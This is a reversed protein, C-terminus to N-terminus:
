KKAAHFVKPWNTYLDFYPDNDIDHCSMCAQSVAAIM